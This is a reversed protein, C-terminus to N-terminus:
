PWVVSTHCALVLLDQSIPVGLLLRFLFHNTPSRLNVAWFSLIGTPKIYPVGLPPLFLMAKDLDVLWIKARDLPKRWQRFNNITETHKLMRSLNWKHPPKIVTIKDTWYYTYLNSYVFLFALFNVWCNFFFFNHSTASIPSTTPQLKLM